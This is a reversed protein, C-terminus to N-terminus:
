VYYRSKGFRSSELRLKSNEFEEFCIACSPPKPVKAIKAPPQELGDTSPWSILDTSFTDSSIEEIIEEAIETKVCVEELVEQISAETKDASRVRDMCVNQMLTERVEGTLPGFVDFKFKKAILLYVQVIVGPLRSSIYKIDNTILFEKMLSQNELGYNLLDLVTYSQMFTEISANLDGSDLDLM